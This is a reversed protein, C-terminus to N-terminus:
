PMVRVNTDGEFIRTLTAFDTAGTVPLGYTGQFTSVADRTSDGFYGDKDVNAQSIGWESLRRQLHHVSLSKRQYMNKFIIASVHVVDYADGSVVSYVTPPAARTPAATPTVEATETYATPNAEATPAEVESLVPEIREVSNTPRVYDSNKAAPKPKPTSTNEAM